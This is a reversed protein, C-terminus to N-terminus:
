QSLFGEVGYLAALSTMSPPVGVFELAKGEVAARRKWALVVAVGASDVRDVRELDVLGAKPLALSGSADLIAASSDMTLPGALVWRDGVVQLPTQDRTM